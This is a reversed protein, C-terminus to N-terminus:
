VGKIKKRELFENIRENGGFIARVSIPLKRGMVWISSEKNKWSKMVTHWGSRM